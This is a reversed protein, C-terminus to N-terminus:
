NQFAIIKTCAHRFISGETAATILPTAGDSNELNVNAGNQILIEVVKEKGLYCFHNSKYKFAHLCNLITGFKMLIRAAM